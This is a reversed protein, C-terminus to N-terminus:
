RILLMNVEKKTKKKSYTYYILHSETYAQEDTRNVYEEKYVNQALSDFDSRFNRLKLTSNVIPWIPNMKDGNVGEVWNAGVEVDIGAFNQKHM